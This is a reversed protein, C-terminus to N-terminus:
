GILHATLGEVTYGEKCMVRVLSPENIIDVTLVISGDRTDQTLIGKHRKIERQTVLDNKM